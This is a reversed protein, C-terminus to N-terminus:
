KIRKLMQIIKRLENPYEASTSYAQLHKTLENSMIDSSMNKQKRLAARAKRFDGYARHTNLNHIYSRIGHELSNFSRYNYGDTHKIKQHEQHRPTAKQGFFNLGQRSLDSTAWGSELAAQALVLHEPIVDVRYLLERALDHITKSLGDQNQLNVNYIDALTNVLISDHESLKHKPNLIMKLNYRDNLISQNVQNVVPLFVSKFKKIRDDRSVTSQDSLHSPFEAHPQGGPTVQKEGSKIDSDQAPIEIPKEIRTQVPPINVLKDAGYIGGLIGAGVAGVAAAKALKDRIGAEDLDHSFVENLLM